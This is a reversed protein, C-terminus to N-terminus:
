LGDEGDEDDDWADDGDDGWEDDEDVGAVAEGEFINEMKRCHQRFRVM